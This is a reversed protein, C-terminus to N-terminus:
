DTLLYTLFCALFCALLCALWCALWCALLCAFLYTLLYTLLYTITKSIFLINDKMTKDSFKLINNKQFFPNSHSNQPQFCIIRIAKKTTYYDTSYCEFKSGM